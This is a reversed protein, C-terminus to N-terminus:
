FAEGENSAPPILQGHNRVNINSSSSSESSGTLAQFAVRRVAEINGNETRLTRLFLGKLGDNSYTTPNAPNFDTNDNNAGMKLTPVIVVTHRNEYQETVTNGLFGRLPEYGTSNWLGKAPYAAYYIRLGVNNSSTIGNNRMGQELHYIFKKLTDLEFWVSHADQLSSMAGSGQIAMLQNGRYKEVMDKVLGVTLQSPEYQDFNICVDTTTGVPPIPETPENKVVPTPTHNVPPYLLVYSVFALALVAILAILIRKQTNNNQMFLLKLYFIYKSPV